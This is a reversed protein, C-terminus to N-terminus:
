LSSEPEYVTVWLMSVDPNVIMWQRGYEEWELKWEAKLTRNYQSNSQNLVDLGQKYTMYSTHLATIADFYPSNVDEPNSTIIKQIDKITAQRQQRGRQSNKLDAFVPHLLEYEDVFRAKDQAIQKGAPTSQGGAQLISNDFQEIQNFYETSQSKFLLSEVFRNMGPITDFKTSEPEVTVQWRRVENIMQETFATQSFQADPDSDDWGRGPVFWAYGNPAQGVVEPQSLVWDRTVETAPLTTGLVSKTSGVTLALPNVISTLDANPNDALYRSTGEEIGYMEIYSYFDQNILEKPNDVGLSTWWGFDRADTIMNVPRGPMPTLVGMLNNMVLGIRTANRTRRLWEEWEASSANEEPVDGRAVAMAMINSWQSIYSISMEDETEFMSSMLNRFHAPVLQNWSSQTSGFEGLLDRRLQQVERSEPFLNTVFTIPVSGLPGFQPRGAQENMGPLLRDVRSTMVTPLNVNKGIGPVGVNGLWQTLSLVQGAGPYVIWRNGNPDERVFGSNELGNALLRANRLKEINMYGNDAVIRMWRKVFAEEAYLFPMLNRIYLSAISRDNHSDIFPLMKSVAQQASANEVKDTWSRVALISRAIEPAQDDMEDTIQLGLQRIGAIDMDMGQDATARLVGNLQRLNMDGDVVMQLVPTPVDAFIDSINFVNEGNVYGYRGELLNLPVDTFLSLLLQADDDRIFAGAIEYNNRMSQLHFHQFMPQRAINDVNRGIFEFLKGTAQRTGKDVYGLITDRTSQPTPVSANRPGLVVNPKMDAPVTGAHDLKSRQFWMFDDTDVVDHPSINMTQRPATMRWGLEVDINDALMPGVMGWAIKDSDGAKVLEYTFYKQDSVGEGSVIPAFGGDSTQYFYNEGQSIVTGDLVEKYEAGDWQYVGQKARRRETAGAGIRHFLEDVIHEAWDRLGEEETLGNVGNTSQTPTWESAAVPSMRYTSANPTYNAYELQMSNPRWVDGVRDPANYPMAYTHLYHIGETQTNNLVDQVWTAYQPNSTGITTVPTVSGVPLSNLNEYRGRNYFFSVYETLLERLEAETNVNLLENQSLRASPSAMLKDVTLEIANPLNADVGVLAENFQSYLYTPDTVAATYIANSRATNVVHTDTQRYRRALNVDPNHKNRMLQMQVATVLEERADAASNYLRAGSSLPASQGRMRAGEFVDSLIDSYTSKAFSDGFVWDHVIALQPHDVHGYNPKYGSILQEMVFMTADDLLQRTEANFSKGYQVAINKTLTDVFHNFFNVTSENPDITKWQTFVINNLFERYQAVRPTNNTKNLMMLLRNSEDTDNLVLSVLKQLHRPHMGPLMDDDPYEKLNTIAETLADRSRETYLQQLEFPDDFMYLSDPEVLRWPQDGILTYIIPGYVEELEDLMGLLFTEMMDWNKAGGLVSDTSNFDGIDEYMAYMWAFKQDESMENPLYSLMRTRFDAAEATVELGRLSRFSQIQKDLESLMNILPETALDGTDLMNAEETLMSKVFDDFYRLVDSFPEDTDLVTERTTLTRWKGPPIIIEDVGQPVFAIEGYDSTALDSHPKYAIWGDAQHGVFTTDDISGYATPNAVLDDFSRSVGFASALYDRDFAYVVGIPTMQGFRSHGGTYGLAQNPHVSTSFGKYTVSTDKRGQRQVELKIRLSGDPLQEVATDNINPYQGRYLWNTTEGTVDEGRGLAELRTNDWASVYGPTSLHRTQQADRVVYSTIPVYHHSLELPLSDMTRYNNTVWDFLGQGLVQSGDYPILDDIEQTAERAFKDYDILNFQQKLSPFLQVVGDGYNQRLHALDSLIAEYVNKVFGDPMTAIEEALNYELVRVGEFGQGVLHSVIRQEFPSMKQVSSLHQAFFAPDHQPHNPIIRPLIDDWAEHLIDDTIAMEVNSHYAADMGVDGQYYRGFENPGYTDFKGVQDPNGLRGYGSTQDIVEALQGERTNSVQRMAMSAHKSMGKQTYNIVDKGLGNAGIARWSGPKNYYLIGKLFEGKTLEGTQLGRAFAAQGEAFRGGVNKFGNQAVGNLWTEYRGIQYGVAGELGLRGAVRQVTRLGVPAKYRLHPKLRDPFAPNGAGIRKATATAEAHNLRRAYGRRMMERTLGYQSSRALFGLMDEGADRAIKPVKLLVAPRWINMLTDIASGVGALRAHNIRRNHQILDKISPIQTKEAVQHPFVGSTLRAGGAMPLIDRNGLQYVKSINEVLEDAYEATEELTNYNLLEFVTKIFGNYAEARGSATSQSIVSAVWGRRISPPLGAMDAMAEINRMLLVPDNFDTVNSAPNMMSIRNMARAIRKEGVPTIRATFTGIKEAFSIPAMEEVVQRTSWVNRATQSTLVDGIIQSNELVNSPLVDDIASMEADDLTQALTKMYAEETYANRFNRLNASLKRSITQSTRLDLFLRQGRMVGTGSLLDTIGQQSEFYEIINKGQINTVTEGAENIFGRNRFYEMMKLASPRFQSPLEDFASRNIAGAIDDFAQRAVPNNAVADALFGVGNSERVVNRVTRSDLVLALGRWTKTANRVAGGSALMNLPDTFIMWMADAGGSVLSHARGTPDLGLGNALDRGFSIKSQNFDQLAAVFNDDALLTAMSTVARDFEPTGRVFSEEIIEIATDKLTTPRLADRRGVLREVLTVQDFMPNTSINSVIQAYNSQGLRDRNRDRVEQTFFKEGDWTAAYARFYNTESDPIINAYELAEKGATYTAGGINAGAVASAATFMGLGLATIPASVPSATGFSAVTTVAGAAALTGGLIMAVKSDWGVQTFTRYTNTTRKSLWEAGQFLKKGGFAVPKAVTYKFPALGWNFATGLPNQYWSREQAEPPGEYGGAVVQQQQDSSLIDWSARQQSESLSQQETIWTQVGYQNLLVDAFMTMDAPDMGM